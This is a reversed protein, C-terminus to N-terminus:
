SRVRASATARRTRPRARPGSRAGRLTAAAPACSSMRISCRSWREIDGARLAAIVAEVTPAPARAAGRRRRHVACAAARGARSSARPMPRARRRDARDRRVGRRVSRALVFALREAPELTDLVVLMALGSPRPSSRTTARISQRRPTAVAARGAIAIPRAARRAARLIDLCVRAVVTTLWGTLNTSRRPIAASCACGRRRSRTEAESRSGLM